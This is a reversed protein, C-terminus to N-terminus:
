EIEEKAGCPRLIKFSLTDIHIIRDKKEFREFCNFFGVANDIFHEKKTSTNETQMSLIDDREIITYIRGLKFEWWHFPRENRICQIKDGLRIQKEMDAKM